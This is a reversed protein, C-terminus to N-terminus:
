IWLLRPIAQMATVIWIYFKLFLGTLLL